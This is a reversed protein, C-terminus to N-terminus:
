STCLVCATHIVHRSSVAHKCFVYTGLLCAYDRALLMCDHSSRSVPRTQRCCRRKRIDCDQGPSRPHVSSATHTHTYTHNISYAHQHICPMLIDIYVFDLSFETYVLACLVRKPAEHLFSPCLKRQQFCDHGSGNVSSNLSSNGIKLSSFSAGPMKGVFVLSSHGYRLHMHVLHNACM